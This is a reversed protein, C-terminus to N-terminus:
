AHAVGRLLGAHVPLHACAGPGGSPSQIPRVKLDMTKLSRFAREVQALSKYTRVCAAADMARGSAPGSKALGEGTALAAISAEDKANLDALLRDLLRSIGYGDYSYTVGSRSWAFLGAAAVLLFLGVLVAGAASRNPRPMAAM